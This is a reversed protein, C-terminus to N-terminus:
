AGKKIKSGPELKSDTIKYIKEVGYKQVSAFAMATKLINEDTVDTNKIKSFTFSGNKQSYKLKFKTAIKTTKVAM